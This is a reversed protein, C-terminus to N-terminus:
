QWGSIEKQPQQPKGNVPKRIEDNWCEGNLYTLPNKRYQSDPTSKVYEPVHVFIRDVDIKSLKAWKKLCQKKGEKKGYMEWFESFRDIISNTIEKVISQTSGDASVDSEPTNGDASDGNETTEDTSQENEYRVNDRNRKALLGSFRKIHKPSFVYGDEITVLELVAMYDIIERIEASDINFDGAM